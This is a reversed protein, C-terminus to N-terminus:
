NRSVSSVWCKTCRTTCRAAFVSRSEAVPRRASLRPARRGRGRAAGASDAAGNGVAAGRGRLGGRSLNQGHGRPRYRFHSRSTRINHLYETQNAGRARVAGRSTRVKLEDTSETASAAREGREMDLEQLAIHVRESDVPERQARAYLDQLVAEARKIASPLGIIQFRNGRRRVEVGLRAEIQHLHEDLPGCLEVLRVNDAPALLLDRTMPVSSVAPKRGVLRGRLSNPMAETIIVDAFQNILGMPAHAPGDFNVWRNNDTRGALQRPNRKAPREVLVRQRSGSWAGRFRTRRRM